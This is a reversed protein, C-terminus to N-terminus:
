ADVSFFVGSVSISDGATLSENCSVAGGSGVQLRCLNNDNSITAFRVMDAPRYGTPLDFITADATYSQGTDVVMIGRLFVLDGVRKYEVGQASNADRWTSGSYSVANWGTGDTLSGDFIIDTADLTIKSDSSDNLLTITVNTSDYEADIEVSAQDGSNAEALLELETQYGSRAPMRIVGRQYDTASITYENGFVALLTQQAPTGDTRTNLVTYARSPDFTDSLSTGTNVEIGRGSLRTTGAKVINDTGDIVLQGVTLIGTDAAWSFSPLNRSLDEGLQLDGDSSLQVTQKGL